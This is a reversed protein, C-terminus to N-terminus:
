ASEKQDEVPIKEENNWRLLGLMICGTICVFLILYGFAMLIVGGCKQM